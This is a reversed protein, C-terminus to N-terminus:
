EQAMYKAEVRTDVTCCTGTNGFRNSLHCHLQPLRPDFVFTNPILFLILARCIVEARVESVQKVQHLHCIRFVEGWDTLGERSGRLILLEQHKLPCEVRGCLVHPQAGWGDRCGGQQLQYECKPEPHLTPVVKCSPNM